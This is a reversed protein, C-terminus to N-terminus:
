GSKGKIFLLQSSGAILAASVPRGNTSLEVTVPGLARGLRQGPRVRDGKRFDTRVATMMTMWGDGHSIIVVGDHRRFPGAFAIIGGAPVLVEQGAYAELTLGRARIGAESVSGIGEVVKAAVPLRYDLPPKAPRGTGPRAPATPLAGLDAALRLEARRREGESRIRAASESSAILVDSAGVVGVGLHAAQEGAKAELAAFKRQRSELEKSAEALQRRARSASAQLRRSEALEASLAASRQRIVPLTTDLLARV